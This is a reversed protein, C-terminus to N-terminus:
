IKKFEIVWVFPNKDWGFGRKANIPDWLTIFKEKIIRGNRPKPNTKETLPLMVVGENIIDVISIEQVREVRINIIKLTIRSAWRPMFLSPRWRCPSEGAKWNYKGNTDTKKGAKEADNSSQIWLLNFLDDDPCNIWERRCKGDAKYDVAINGLDENWAGVRWTEKVWLRDGEQGYPCRVWGGAEITSQPKIVRRTQTKRGELIVRVMESNFLIPREKMM